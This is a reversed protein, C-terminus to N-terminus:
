TNNLENLHAAFQAYNRYEVEEGDIFVTPTGSVGLQNGEQVDAAVVVQKERTDLCAEFREEDLGLAEAYDYLYAVALRDQNDFLVDHYAWFRNQDRACEAAEAARQAYPHISTLPFHKYEVHVDFDEKVSKLVPAFRGCYPCQFDGFETITVDAEPNNVEDDSYNYTAPDVAASGDTSLFVFLGIATILGVIILFPTWSSKKKAM